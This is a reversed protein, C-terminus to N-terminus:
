YNWKYTHLMALKSIYRLLHTSVRPDPKRLTVLVYGVETTALYGYQWVEAVRVYSCQQIRLGRVSGQRLSAPVLDGKDAREGHSSILPHSLTYNATGTNGGWVRM